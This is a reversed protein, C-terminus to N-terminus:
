AELIFYTIDDDYLYNETTNKRIEFLIRENLRELSEERNEKLISILLEKELLTNEKFYEVLGDTYFIIRDGSELLINANEYKPNYFDGFKCIPFGISKDLMESEGTKRVLIPVVNMGGSCYSLSKTKVNYVAEFIVIHMENPFNSKNFERYFYDLRKGPSSNKLGRKYFDTSKMVRDAFVTMMAASVGHSRFLM